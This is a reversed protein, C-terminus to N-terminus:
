YLKSSFRSTIREKRFMSRYAVIFIFGFFGIVLQLILRQPDMSRSRRLGLGWKPDKLDRFDHEIKMRKRYIAMIKEASIDLSSVILWPKKAANKYEKEKRGYKVKRIKVTDSKDAEEKFKKYIYLNSDVKNSKTLKVAGVTKPECTAQEFLMPCPQWQEEELPTYHMNGLIRGVYDWNATEVQVFFDTKFGADVILCVDCKEPLVEKLNRLFQQHVEGQGLKSEPYIEEYVTVSRGKRIISARLVPQQHAVITSWDIAIFLLKYSIM